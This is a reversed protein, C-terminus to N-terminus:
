YVNVKPQFTPPQGSDQFQLTESVGSLLILALLKKRGVSRDHFGISPFSFPVSYKNDASRSFCGFLQHSM